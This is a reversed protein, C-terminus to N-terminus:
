SRTQRAKVSVADLAALFEDSIRGMEKFRDKNQEIYLGEGEAYLFNDNGKLKGKVTIRKASVKDVWSDVLMEAGLEVPKYFQISMKATMVPYGNAWAVLGMAEDLVCAIAGGHAHNPPGQAFKGFLVKAYLHGNKRNFYYDLKLRDEHPDGSVFLPKYKGLDLKILDNAEGFVNRSYGKEERRGVASLRHLWTTYNVDAQTIQKLSELRRGCRKCHTAPATKVSFGNENRGCLYYPNFQGCHPCIPCLLELDGLRTKRSRGNGRRRITRKYRTIYSRLM